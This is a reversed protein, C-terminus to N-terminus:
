ELNPGRTPPPIEGMVARDIEHIRHIANAAHKTDPLTEAIQMLLAKANEADHQYKWYVDVLRSSLSAAEEPPLDTDLAQELVSAASEPSALRDCYIHAMESVALTDHPNEEYIALYSEIAGEYDGQAVKAQAVTHPDREMKEGPNYFFGGIWEGIAPVVSIAIVVGTVLAVALVGFFYMFIATKDGEEKLFEVHGEQFLIYGFYVLAAVVLIRTLLPM